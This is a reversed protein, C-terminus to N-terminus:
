KVLRTVLTHGCKLDPSSFNTVNTRWAPNSVLANFILKLDTDLWLSAMWAVFDYSFFPSHLHSLRGVFFCVCWSVHDELNKLGLRGMQGPNDQVDARQIGVHDIWGWHPNEAGLYQHVNWFGPAFHCFWTRWMHDEMLEPTSITFQLWTTRVRRGDRLLFLNKWESWLPVIRCMWVQGISSSIDGGHAGSWRVAITRPSIQHVYWSKGGHSPLGMSLFGHRVAAQAFVQRVKNLKQSKIFGIVLAAIETMEMSQCCQIMNPRDYWLEPSDLCVFFSPRFTRYQNPQSTWDMTRCPDYGRQIRPWDTM